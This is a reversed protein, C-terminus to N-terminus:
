KASEIALLQVEFVLTSNAPILPSPSDEGYALEAPITLKRSGGVKMGPIGLDWGKIVAGSGVKFKFPEGRDFSSDFKTGDTLTGTYHVTVVDGSKAGAGDGVTLDEKEFGQPNEANLLNEISENSNNEEKATEGVSFALYRMVDHQEELYRAGWFLVGVLLLAVTFSMFFSKDM